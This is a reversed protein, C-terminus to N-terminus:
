LPVVQAVQAGYTMAVGTFTVLAAALVLGARPDRTVGSVVLAIFTAVVFTVAIAAAPLLNGVASATVAFGALVVVDALVRDQRNVPAPTSASM